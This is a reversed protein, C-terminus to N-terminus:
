WGLYQNNIPLFMTQAGLNWSGGMCYRNKQVKSDVWIGEPLVLLKNNFMAMSITLKWMLLM